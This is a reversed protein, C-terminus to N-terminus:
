WDRCYCERIPQDCNGCGSVYNTQSEDIVVKSNLKESLIPEQIPRMFAYSYQYGVFPYGDHRNICKLFETEWDGEDGSDSFEWERGVADKPVKDINVACYFEPEKYYCKGCAVSYHPVNGDLLIYGEIVERCNVCLVDINKTQFGDHPENHNKNQSPNSLECIYRASWGGVGNKIMFSPSGNLMRTLATLEYAATWTKFEEDRLLNPPCTEYNGVLCGILNEEAYKRDDENQADLVRLIKPETM